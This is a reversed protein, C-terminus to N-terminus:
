HARRPLLGGRDAICSVPRDLIEYPVWGIEEPESSPHEIVQGTAAAPREHQALLPAVLCFLCALFVLPTRM